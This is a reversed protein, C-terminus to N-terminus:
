SRGGSVFVGFPFVSAPGITEELVACVRPTKRERPVPACVGRVGVVFLKLKLSSHLRECVHPLVLTLVCTLLCASMRLCECVVSHLMNLMCFSVVGICQYVHECVWSFSTVGGFHCVCASSCPLTRIAPPDPPLLPVGM